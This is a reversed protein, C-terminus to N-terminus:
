ELPEGLFPEFHFWQCPHRRAMRELHDAYQQVSRQIAVSRKSRTDARVYIPESVTIHYRNEGTRFAFFIFIPAGSLMALVHPAELLQVEHNFFRASTTRERGSWPRDGPLAVMGGQKLFNVADLIDLPSASETDVAVIRVGSQALGNKIFWGIQEKQKKGEANQIVRAIM